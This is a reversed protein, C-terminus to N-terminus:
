LNLRPHLLWEPAQNDLRMRSVSDEHLGYHYTVRKQSFVSLGPPKNTKPQNELVLVQRFGDFSVLYDGYAPKFYEEAHSLRRFM